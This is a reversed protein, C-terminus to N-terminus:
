DRSLSKLYSAIKRLDATLQALKEAANTVYVDDRPIGAAELAKAFIGGAPGVFPRGKLDEQSGPQEGVAM